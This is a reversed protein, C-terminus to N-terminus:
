KWVLMSIRAIQNRGDIISFRTTSSISRATNLQAGFAMRRGAANIISSLSKGNSSGSIDTIYYVTGLGHKWKGIRAFSNQSSDAVIIKLDADTPSEFFYGSASAFTVADGVNADIFDDTSVVVANNGSTTSGTMSFGSQILDPNGEFILIGGTTLFDKLDNINVQSQQLQPEEIIITKYASRNAVMTNFANVQSASYVNRADGADPTGTGGYYLDWVLGSNKIAQGVDNQQFYFYAAPSQAVGTLINYNNIDYFSINVDLEGLGLLDKARRYDMRMFSKIKTLNIRGSVDSLGISGVTTENWDQPYGATKLMVDTAFVSFTEIERRDDEAKIQIAIRDFTPIVLSLVILFIVMSIIFDGSITQAKSM